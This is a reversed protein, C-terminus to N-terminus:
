QKEAGAQARLTPNYLVRNLPFTESKGSAVGDLQMAARYENELACTEPSNRPDTMNPDRYDQQADSLLTRLKKLEVGCPSGDQVVRVGRVWMDALTSGAGPAQTRSGMVLLNVPDTRPLLALSTLDWLCVDAVM